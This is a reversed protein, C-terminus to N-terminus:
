TELNRERRRGHGPMARDEGRAFDCSPLSIQLGFPKKQMRNSYALCLGNAIPDKDRAM